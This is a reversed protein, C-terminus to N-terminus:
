IVDFLVHFLKLLFVGCLNTTEQAQGGGTMEIQEDHMHKFEKITVMAALGGRLDYLKAKM